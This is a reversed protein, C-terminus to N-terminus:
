AASSNWPAATAIPSSDWLKLNSTDLKFVKFDTDLVQPAQGEFDLTPAIAAREEQIKHGARHIREKGIQCINKTTPRLPKAKKMACNPFNCVFLAGSTAKKLM